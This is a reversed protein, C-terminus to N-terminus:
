YVEIFLFVGSSPLGAATMMNSIQSSYFSFAAFVRRCLEKSVPMGQLIVSLSHTYSLIYRYTKSVDSFFATLLVTLVICYLVVCCM